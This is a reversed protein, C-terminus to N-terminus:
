QESLAKWAWALTEVAIQDNVADKQAILTRINQFIIARELAIALTFLEEARPGLYTVLRDIERQIEEQDM